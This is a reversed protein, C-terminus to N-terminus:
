IIFLTKKNRKIFRMVKSKKAWFLTPIPVNFGSAELRRSKVANSL